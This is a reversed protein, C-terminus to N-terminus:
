QENKSAALTEVVKDALRKTVHDELKEEAEKTHDESLSAAEPPTAGLRIEGNKEM